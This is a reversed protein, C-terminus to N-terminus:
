EILPGLRLQIMPQGPFTEGLVELIASERLRLEEAVAPNAAAVTLVGSRYSVFRFDTPRLEPVLQFLIPAAAEVIVAATISREAGTRRVANSLYDKLPRFM